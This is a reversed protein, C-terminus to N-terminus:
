QKNKDIFKTFYEPLPSDFELWEGKTPHVFGLKKAHLMQGNSGYKLAQESTKSYVPDGFVPHGVYASHVRIQHTRGTELKFEVLSFGKLEQIVKYHTVAERANKGSLIVSMKKRDSPSRGIPASITGESQKLHGVVIANYIRLFSHEKIQDALAIHAIDNKAVMLLGSTDKDIRHVIGPRVVGNIGSLSDGCHSLLANVLTNDPNGAAPHVVMGQPKNVVIVDDDEFIVDLPIDQAEVETKVPDPITIQIIDSEKTKYNKGVVNGNVTINGKELLNVVASRTLDSREAIYSDIRKSSEGAQVIIEM